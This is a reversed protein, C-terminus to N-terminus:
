VLENLDESLEDPFAKSGVEARWLRIVDPGWLKETIWKPPRERAIAFTMLNRDEQAEADFTRPSSPPTLSSSRPSLPDESDDDSLGQSPSDWDSATSAFGLMQVDIDDGENDTSESNTSESDTSATDASELDASESDTSESDTSESDTNSSEVYGLLALLEDELSQERNVRKAPRPSAAPSPAPRKIAM